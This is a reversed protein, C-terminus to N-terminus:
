VCFGFGKRGDGTEKSTESTEVGDQNVESEDKEETVHRAIPELMNFAATKYGWDHLNLAWQLKRHLRTPIM